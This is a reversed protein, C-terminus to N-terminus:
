TQQGVVQYPSCRVQGPGATRRAQIEVFVSAGYAGPMAVDVVHQGIVFGVDNTGGIVQGDAVVRVRGTTTSEDTTHRVDVHIKPQWAMVFGAWLTEHTGSTTGPWDTYRAPVLPHALWPRALGVGGNTDDAFVVNGARDYWNLAQQYGDDPDADFMALATSADGDRYLHFVHQPDGQDNKRWSSAGLWLLTNGAKGIVKVLGGDVTLGGSGITAAQLRKAANSERLQRKIERLERRIWGADVMSTKPRM